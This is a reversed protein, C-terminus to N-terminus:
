VNNKQDSTTATLAALQLCMPTNSRARGRISRSSVSKRASDAAAPTVLRQDRRTICEWWYWGTDSGGTLV